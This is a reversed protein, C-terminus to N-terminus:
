SRAGVGRRLQARFFGAPLLFFTITPTHCDTDSDPAAAPRRDGCQQVTDGHPSPAICDSLEARKFPHFYRFSPFENTEKGHPRQWALFSVSFCIISVIGEIM